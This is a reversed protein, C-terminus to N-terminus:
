SGPPMTTFFKAKRTSAHTQAPTGPQRSSSRRRCRRPARGSRRARRGPCPARRGCTRPRTSRARPRGRRRAADEADGRGAARRHRERRAVLDDRDVDVRHLEGVRLPAEGALGRTRPAASRTIANPRASPGSAPQRGDRTARTGRGRRDRRASRTSAGAGRCTASGRRGRRARRASPAARRRRTATGRGGAAAGRPPSARACPASSRGAGWGRRIGVRARQEEALEGVRGRRRLRVSM